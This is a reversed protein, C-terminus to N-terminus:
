KEKQENDSSDGEEDSESGSDSEYVEETESSESLKMNDLKQQLMEDTVVVWEAKASRKVKVIEDSTEGRWTLKGWARRKGKFGKPRMRLKSSSIEWYCPEPYRLFRRRVFKMGNGFKPSRELMEFLNVNERKVSEVKGAESDLSGDAAVPEQPLGSCLRFGLVSTLGNSRGGLNMPSRWLLKALM